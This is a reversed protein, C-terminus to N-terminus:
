VGAAERCVELMAAGYAAAVGAERALGEAEAAPDPGPALDDWRARLLEALADPADVGFFGLAHPAQERHVALDSCLLPRGLAKADEVTTSWGEFRSPQLVLAAARLLSVLDAFPVEGLLFVRDSAGATAIRQLLRSTSPNRRDRYDAPRGVMVVPIGPARAIADVVLEHNKHAWLQNVVLAFKPPLHYKALAGRPDGSPPDFAFRSPFPAVRAKALHEPFFRAFHDRVSESSLIMRTCRESLAAHVADRDVLEEHTFYEPLLRHQFDPIWGVTALDLGPPPAAICVPVAVDLGAARAVHLPDSGDVLGLRARAPWEGPLPGLRARLPALRRVVRARLSFDAAEARVPELGPPPPEAGVWFLRERAPDAARRLAEALVLSYTAGATWLPTALSLIGIRLPRSGASKM